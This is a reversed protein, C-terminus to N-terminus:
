CTEAEEKLAAVFVKLWGEIAAVHTRIRPIEYGYVGGAVFQPPHAQCFAAFEKVTGIAHTAERFGPPAPKSTKGLLALRTVTPPRESEVAAEFDKTPINAVRAATVEQRKSMGAGAAAGRQSVTTDTVVSRKGAQNQFTKLLEGARRIARAKIRLAFNQLAEDDAQKAYSALAASKDAWDKCEDIATCTALATKAREYSVPLTARGIDPLPPAARMLSGAAAGVRGALPSDAGTVGHADGTIRYSM